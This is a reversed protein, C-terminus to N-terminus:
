VKPSTLASRLRKDISPRSTISLQLWGVTTPSKRPVGSTCSVMVRSAPPSYKRVSSYALDLSIRSAATRSPHRGGSGASAMSRADASAAAESTAMTHTPNPPSQCLSPKSRGFISKGPLCSASTSCTAAAFGRVMTTSLVPEGMLMGQSSLTAATTCAQYGPWSHPLAM